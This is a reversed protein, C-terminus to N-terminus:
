EKEKEVPHQSIARKRAVRAGRKCHTKAWHWIIAGFDESCSQCPKNSSLSFQNSEEVPEERAAAWPASEHHQNHPYYFNIFISALLTSSLLILVLAFLVISHLPLTLYQETFFYAGFYFTSNFALM